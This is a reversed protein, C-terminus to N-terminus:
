ILSLMINIIIVLSVTQPFSLRFRLQKLSVIIFVKQFYQRM